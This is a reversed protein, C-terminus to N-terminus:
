RNKRRAKKQAKRKAKRQSTTIKKKTASHNKGKMLRQIMKIMEPTLPIADGQKAPIHEDAQSEALQEEAIEVDKKLEEAEKIAEDM